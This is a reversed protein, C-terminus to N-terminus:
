ERWQSLVDNRNTHCTSFITKMLNLMSIFILIVLPMIRSAEFANVTLITFHLVNLIVLTVQSFECTRNMDRLPYHFADFEMFLESPVLLYPYMSFNRIIFLLTATLAADSNVIMTAGNEIALIAFYILALTFNSIVVHNVSGFTFNM